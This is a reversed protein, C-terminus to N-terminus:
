NWFFFNKALLISIYIIAVGLVGFFASGGEVAFAILLPFILLMTFELPIRFAFAFLMVLATLILLTLFVSGTVDSSLGNIVTYVTGSTNMLGM